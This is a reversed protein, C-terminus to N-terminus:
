VYLLVAPVVVVEGAQMHDCPHRVYVSVLAYSAVALDESSKSTM